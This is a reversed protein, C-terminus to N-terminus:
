YTLYGRRRTELMSFVSAFYLFFGRLQEKIHTFYVHVNKLQTMLVLHHYPLLSIHKVRLRFIRELLKLGDKKLAEM